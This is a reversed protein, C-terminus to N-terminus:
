VQYWAASPRYRGVIMTVDRGRGKRWGNAVPNAKSQELAAWTTDALADNDVIGHAPGVHPNFDAIRDEDIWFSDADTALGRITM